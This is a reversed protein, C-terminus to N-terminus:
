NSYKWIFGKTHPLKGRAVSSINGPSCGTAGAAENISKYKRIRKGGKSYQIVGKTKARLMNIRIEPDLIKLHSRQRKRSFSLRQKDSCSLLLLNSVHNNLDDDDKHCIMGHDKKFDISSVFLHFVLRGVGDSFRKKNYIFVARVDYYYKRVLSNYRSQISLTLIKEKTTFGNKGRPEVYRPLAKVRGFNSVQYYDDTDPISKWRETKLSKLSRNFCPYDKVKIKPNLKIL